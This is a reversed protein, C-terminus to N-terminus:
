GSGICSASATSPRSQKKSPRRSTVAPGPGRQTQSGRQQRGVGTADQQGCVSPGVVARHVRFPRVDGFAPRANRRQGQRFRRQLGRLASVLASCDTAQWGVPRDVVSPGPGRCGGTGPRHCRRGRGCAERQRQHACRARLQTQASGATERTLRGTTSSRPLCVWWAPSPSPVTRATRPTFEEVFEVAEFRDQRPHDTTMRFLGSFAAPFKRSCYYGVWDCSARSTPWPRGGTRFMTCSGSAPSPTSRRTASPFRSPTVSRSRQPTRGRDCGDGPRSSWTRTSISATVRTAHMHDLLVESGVGRGCGIELVHSGTMSGGAMSRFWEAERRRQHWERVPNNM